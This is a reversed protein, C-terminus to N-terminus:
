DNNILAMLGLFLIVGVIFGLIFGVTFIEMPVV